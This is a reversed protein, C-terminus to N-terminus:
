GLLEDLSGLTVDATRLRDGRVYNLEVTAGAAHTRVQATIDTKNSIPVGDLGIIIDGIQLGAVEAAGGEVVQVISAGIVTAEAQAPDDAVNAVSVGLLGHTAEGHEIIEAAIRAAINSPIAFGVGISGRNGGGGTAIAVNIGILRGDDDLLAGGSNGSNIATDTQIVALQIVGSPALRGQNADPVDFRFFDFPNLGEEQGGDPAQTDADEPIASSAVEISRDLSSIIGSTVTGALGLPAGIAITTDGVNLDSSDAFEIPVLGSAGDVKIVALDMLPDIGVVEADYVRGSSTTIRISPEAELGGLSVVHANTVIHGEDDLVVGSGTGAGNSGVVSITVVSPMASAAVASILTADDTDNVTITQPGSVPLSAGGGGSQGLLVAAGAGSVGGLVAGIAVGALVPGWVRRRPPQPAVVESAPRSFPPPVSGAAAGPTAPAASPASHDRPAVAATSPTVPPSPPVFGASEVGTTSAIFASSEAPEAPAAPEPPAVPAAPAEPAAPADLKDPDAPAAPGTPEAPSAEPNPSTPTSAEDSMHTGKSM